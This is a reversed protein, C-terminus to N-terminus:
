AVSNGSRDQQVQSDQVTRGIPRLFALGVMAGGNLRQAHQTPRHGTLRAGKALCQARQVGIEGRSFLDDDDTIRLFRSGLGQQICDVTAIQGILNEHHCTGVLHLRQALAERQQSTAALNATRDRRINTLVIGALQWDGIRCLQGPL